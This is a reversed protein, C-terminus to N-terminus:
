PLPPAACCCFCRYLPIFICPVFLCFVFFFDKPVSMETTFTYNFQTSFYIYIYMNKPLFPIERSRRSTSIDVGRSTFQTEFHHSMSMLYPKTQKYYSPEIIIIIIIIEINQKKRKQIERRYFPVLVIRQFTKEGVPYTHGGLRVM